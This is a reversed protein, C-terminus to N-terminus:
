ERLVGWVLGPRWCGCVIAAPRLKFYPNRFLQSKQQETGSRLFRRHSQPPPLFIFFVRGQLYKRRAAIARARRKEELTKGRWSSKYESEVVSSLGDRWKTFVRKSVVSKRTFRETLGVHSKASGVTQGAATWNDGKYLAGKRQDEEVVFTEFGFPVVGYLHQGVLPVVKRWLSMVRTALNREHNVMRFVTTDIIGNLVKDRNESTIGFFADRPATAYTASAGSIIGALQGKNCLPM